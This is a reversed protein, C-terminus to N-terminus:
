DALVDLGAPFQSSGDRRNGILAVIGNWLASATLSLERDRLRILSYPQVSLGFEVPLREIAGGLGKEDILFQGVQVSVPAIANSQTIMVLTLLMSSTNLVRHPPRVNCRVFFQEVTRRMLSGQPQFVWDYEAMRAADVVGRRLIPHGRRVVFCVNEAEIERAEFQGPDLDDPIRAIIFDHHSALLERGLVASTDIKITFEVRPNDERMAAIAPIALEIAPATVCGISVAGGRGARLDSIERDAERFEILIARARRALTEGYATLRVGRTRRECLPVKLIREMDTIMRSAAPQSMGLLQAAASVQGFEELAVILRMHVLKLRQGLLRDADNKGPGSFFRHPEM